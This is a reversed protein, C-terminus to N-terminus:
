ADGGDQVAACIWMINSANDKLMKAGKRVDEVDERGLLGVWYTLFARTSFVVVFPTKLVKFEFMARDRCNWIAWLLACVRVRNETM